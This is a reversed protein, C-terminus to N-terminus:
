KLKELITKIDNVNMNGYTNKVSNNNDYRPLMKEIEQDSLKFELPPLLKNVLEKFEEKKINIAKFFEDTYEKHNKDEYNILDNTFIACAYGHPLKYNETFYYGLTHCFVTGTINIALGGLISANYTQELQALSLDKNDAMLKLIPFLIRIGQLSYARSIDNAKNDFYSETLHALADIATSNRIYNSMSTLYRPDSFAYKAFIDDTHISKKIGKNTTMVSVKTVESGTGATTGILILPLPKNSYNLKYVDEETLYPNTAIICATKAADLVSGGGIGVVYDANINNALNGAEICSAVTPNQKIGNYIEYKIGLEKFVDLLDDLAGSKIASSASTIILCSKNFDNFITKNDKIANIGTLLKTPMYNNM